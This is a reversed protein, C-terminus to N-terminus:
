VVTSSCRCKCPTRKIAGGCLTKLPAMAGGVRCLTPSVRGQSRRLAQVSRSEKRHHHEALTPWSGINSGRSSWSWM